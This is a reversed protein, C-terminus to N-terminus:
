LWWLERVFYLTALNQLIILPVGLQFYWKRTKHRLILMGLYVGVSGFATAMFFILGEPIREADERDMSKRKDYYMVLFTAINIAVFISTLLQETSM